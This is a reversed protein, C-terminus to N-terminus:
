IMQKESMKYLDYMLVFENECNSLVANFIDFRLSIMLLNFFPKNKPLM